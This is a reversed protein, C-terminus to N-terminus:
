LPNGQEDLRVSRQTCRCMCRERAPLAPDGPYRARTKSPGVEWTGDTGALKNHMDVHSHRTRDDQASLWKKGLRIGMAKAERHACEAGYNLASTSETRAANIARARTLQTYVGLIRDTIQKVNEGNVYGEHLADRLKRLTTKNVKSAYHEFAQTRAWDQVEPMTVNFAIGGADLDALTQRAAEEVMREIERKAAEGLLRYWEQEDFLISQILSPDRKLHRERAYRGELAEAVRPHAETLRALVDALQQRALKRHMRLFRREAPEQSARVWEQWARAGPEEEPTDGAPEAEAEEARTAVAKGRASRDGTALELDAQAIKTALSVPVSGGSVWLEDGGEVAPLGRRARVENLTVIKGVESVEIQSQLEEDHPTIDDYGIEYWVKAGPTIDEFDSLLHRTLAAAILKAMPLVAHKIHASEAVLASARSSAGERFGLAEPPVKFTMLIRDRVYEALEFISLDAPKLNAPTLSMKDGVAVVHDSKSAKELSRAVQQRVRAIDDPNTTGQVQLIWDLRGGTGVVTRLYRSLLIDAEVVEAIRNLKSVGRLADLLNARTIHIVDQPEYNVKIQTGPVHYTWREVGFPGRKERMADARVPVLEKVYGFENREKILFAEDVLDLSKAIQYFLSTDNDRQNPRWLLDAVPHAEDRVRRITNGQQECRVPYFDIESLKQANFDSAIAVWGQDGETLARTQTFSSRRGMAAQLANVTATGLMVGRTVVGAAAARIRQILGM